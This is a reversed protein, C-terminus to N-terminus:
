PTPANTQALCDTLTVNHCYLNAAPCKGDSWSVTVKLSAPYSSPPPAPSIGSSNCTSSTQEIAVQRVFIPSVIPINPQCPSGGNKNCSTGGTDTPSNKLTTCSIAMCYSGSLAAFTAADSNRIQRILELGQQAYQTAQNQNKTFQAGSLSSLVAVSIAAVVVIAVSLAVLVEILTQGSEKKLFEAFM